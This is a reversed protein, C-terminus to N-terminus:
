SPGLPTWICSWPPGLVAGPPASPGLVAGLGSWAPELDRWSTIASRHSIQDSAFGSVRLFLKKVPYRLLPISIYVCVYTHM